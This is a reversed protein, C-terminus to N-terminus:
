TRFNYLQKKQSCTTHTNKKEIQHHWEGSGSQIQAIYINWALCYDLFIKYLIQITFYATFICRRVNDHVILFFLFVRTRNRQESSYTYVSGDSGLACWDLVLIHICYQGFVDLHVLFVVHRWLFWVLFFFLICLM